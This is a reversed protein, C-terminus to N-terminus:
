SKQIFKVTQANFSKVSISMLFDLLHMGHLGYHKLALPNKPILFQDVNPLLDTFFSSIPKGEIMLHLYQFLMGYYFFHKNDFNFLLDDQGDYFVKCACGIAPRYYAKRSSSVITTAYKYIIVEASSVWGSSVPDSNDYHNGHECKQDPQFIPILTESFGKVGSEHLSHLQRLNEALPYPIKQYSIAKPIIHGEQISQEDEPIEEDIDYEKIWENFYNIHACQHSSSCTTCQYRYIEGVKSRHIIEHTYGDCVGVLFPKISLIDTCPKITESLHNIEATPFLCNLCKIHICYLSKCHV